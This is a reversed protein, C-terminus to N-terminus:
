SVSWILAMQDVEACPQSTMALVCPERCPCCCSLLPLLQGETGLGHQGLAGLLMWRGSVGEVRNPALPQAPHHPDSSLIM